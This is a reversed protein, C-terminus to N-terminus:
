DRLSPRSHAKSPTVVGHSPNEEGPLEGRVSATPVELRRTLFLMAMCLVGLCFGVLLGLAFSVM